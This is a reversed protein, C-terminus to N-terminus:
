GEGAAQMLKSVVFDRFPMAGIQAVFDQYRVTARVENGDVMASWVEYHDDTNREVRVAGVCRMPVYDPQPTADRVVLSLGGSM